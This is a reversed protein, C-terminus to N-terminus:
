PKVTTFVTHFNAYTLVYMYRANTGTTTQTGRELSGGRANAHTTAYQPSVVASSAFLPSPRRTAAAAASRVAPRACSRQLPRAAGAPRGAPEGAHQAGHLLVAIIIAHFGEVAWRGGSSCVKSHIYMGDGVRGNTISNATNASAAPLKEDGFVCIEEM